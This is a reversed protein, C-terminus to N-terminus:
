EESELDIIVYSRNNMSPKVRIGHYYLAEGPAKVCHNRLMTFNDDALEIQLITFGHNSDMTTIIKDLREKM